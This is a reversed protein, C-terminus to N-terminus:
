VGEFVATIFEEKQFKETADSYITSLVILTDNEREHKLLFNHYVKKRIDSAKGIINVDFDVFSLETFVLLNSLDYSTTHLILYNGVSPVSGVYQKLKDFHLSKFNKRTSYPIDLSEGFDRALSPDRRLSRISAYMTRKNVASVVLRATVFVIGGVLMLLFVSLKKIVEDEFLEKM